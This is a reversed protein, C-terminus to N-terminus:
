ATLERFYCHSAAASRTLPWHGQRKAPLAKLYRHEDVSLAAPQAKMSIQDRGCARAQFGRPTEHAPWCKTQRYSISRNALCEDPLGARPGLDAPQEARCDM